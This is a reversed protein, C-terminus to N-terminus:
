ARLEAPAAKRVAMTDPCAALLDTVTRGLRPHVLDPQLEVLPVLVFRRLHLRPHPLVPDPADRCLDDYFLVDVDLTRPGDKVGRVRGRAREAGQGAELVAEPSLETAAELVANTFWDQPPGGVPETVYLSSRRSITVGQEALHRAAHAFAEERDGLNSGLGLYVRAM